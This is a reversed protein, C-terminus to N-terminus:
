AEEMALKIMAVIQDRQGPVLATYNFSENSLEIIFGEDEVTKNVRKIASFHYSRVCHDKYRDMLIDEVFDLELIRQEDAERVTFILYPFFYGDKLM